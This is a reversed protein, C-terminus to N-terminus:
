EPTKQLQFNISSSRHLRCTHSEFWVYWNNHYHPDIEHGHGIKQAKTDLFTACTGFFASFKTQTFPNANFSKRSAAVAMEGHENKLSARQTLTHRKLIGQLDYWNRRLNQRSSFESRNKYTCVIFIFILQM